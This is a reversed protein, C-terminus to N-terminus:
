GERDFLAEHRVLPKWYVGTAELAVHTVGEGALWDALELLEDTMTGFTRITKSPQGEPGPVIACAVVTRKHVDIGCCRPYLVDM